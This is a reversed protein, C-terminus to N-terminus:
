LMQGPRQSALEVLRAFGRCTQELEDFAGLGAVQGGELYLIRDCAQVTSLRHAVIVMMTEGHLMQLAETVARETENDLASTAEDLVLITPQRFLARALGLRQRQGGSLRNGRQGVVAQVGSPLDSVIVDLM